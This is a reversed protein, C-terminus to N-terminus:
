VEKLEGDTLFGHWGDDFGEHKYVLISPTLTPKERDGNWSWHPKSGVLNGAVPLICTNTFADEGYRIAILTDSNIFCWDGVNGNKDLDDMNNKLM